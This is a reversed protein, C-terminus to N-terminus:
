LRNSRRGVARDAVLNRAPIRTWTSPGIRSWARMSRLGGRDPGSTRDRGRNSRQERRPESRPGRTSRKFCRAAARMLRPSRSRRASWEATRTGCRTRVERPGRISGHDRESKTSAALRAFRRTGHSSSSSRRRSSEVERIPGSRPLDRAKPAHRSRRSARSRQFSRSTRSALAAIEARFGRNM